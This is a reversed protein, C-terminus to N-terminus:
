RSRFKIFGNEIGKLKNKIITDYKSKKKCLFYAKINSSRM